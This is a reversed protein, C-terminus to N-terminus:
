LSALIKSISLSLQLRWGSLPPLNSAEKLDQIQEGLSTINIGQELITQEQTKVLEKLSGNDEVLKENVKTLESIKSELTEIKTKNETLQKETGILTDEVKILKEIEGVAIDVNHQTQLADCLRTFMNWNTDREQRLQDVQAQLDPTTAGDKPFTKDFVRYNIVARAFGGYTDFSKENGTWPDAISFNEGDYGNVVVFHMEEGTTAPNFDIEAMLVKGQDLFSKAKAIGQSTVLGDWSPSQYELNLGLAKIAKTWQILGDDPGFGGNKKLIDNVEVPTKGTIMGLSTIGCAYNGFTYPAGSNNGLTFSSWQPNRQGLILPLKLKM